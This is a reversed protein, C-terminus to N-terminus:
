GNHAPHMLSGYRSKATLGVFVVRMVGSEIFDSELGDGIRM